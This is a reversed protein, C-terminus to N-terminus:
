NGVRIEGSSSRAINIRNEGLISGYKGVMGPRDPYEMVLLHGGIPLDISYDNYRVVRLVGNVLAPSRRERISVRASPSAPVM